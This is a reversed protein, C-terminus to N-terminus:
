YQDYENEHQQYRDVLLQRNDKNNKKKKKKKNKKMLNYLGLGGAALGTGLLLQQWPFQKTETSNNNEPIEPQKDITETTNNSTDEVTNIGDTVYQNDYYNLLNNNGEYLWYPADQSRNKKDDEVYRNTVTDVLGMNLSTNLVPYKPFMNFSYAYGPHGMYLSAGHNVLNFVTGANAIGTQSLPLLANPNSISGLRAATAIDYAGAAAPTGTIAFKLSNGTTLGLGKAATFAKAGQAIPVFQVFDLAAHGANALTRDFTSGEANGINMINYQDAIDSNYVYSRPDYEAEYMNNDLGISLSKDVFSQIGNVLCSGYRPILPWDATVRSGHPNYASASDIDLGLGKRSLMIQYALTPSNAYAEDAAPGQGWRILSSLLGKDQRLDIKYTGVPRVLPSTSVISPDMMLAATQMYSYYAEQDKYYSSLTHENFAPVNLDNRGGFYFHRYNNFTNNGNDGLDTVSTYEPLNLEHSLVYQLLQGSYRIDSQYVTSKEPDVDTYLQRVQEEAAYKDYAPNDRNSNDHSMKVMRLIKEPYYRCARAIYCRQAVTRQYAPTTVAEYLLVDFAANNIGEQVQNRANISEFDNYQDLQDLKLKVVPPVYVKLDGTSNERIIYCCYNSRATDGTMGLSVVQADSLDGTIPGTVRETDADWELIVDIDAQPTGAQVLEDHMARRRAAVHQQYKETLKYDNYNEDRCIADFKINHDINEDFQKPVTGYKPDGAPILARFTAENAGDAIAHIRGLTAREFYAKPDIVINGNSDKIARFVPIHNGQRTRLQYFQTSGGAPTYKFRDQSGYPSQIEPNYVGQNGIQAYDGFHPADYLYHGKPLFGFAGLRGAYQDSSVFKNTTRDFLAVYGGGVDAFVYRNNEEYPPLTPAQDLQLTYKSPTDSVGELLTPILNKKQLDTLVHQLDTVSLSEFTKGYISEFNDKYDQPLAHWLERKLRVIHSDVGEESYAPNFQSLAFPLRWIGEGKPDQLIGKLMDREAPDYEQTDVLMSHRIVEKSVKSPDGYYGQAILQRYKESGELCVEYLTDDLSLGHRQFLPGYKENIIPDNITFAAEAIPKLYGKVIEKKQEASLNNDILTASIIPYVQRFRLDLIDTGDNGKKYSKANVISLEYNLIYQQEEATLQKGQKIKAYISEVKEAAAKKAAREANRKEEARRMAAADENTVTASVHNIYNDGGSPTDHILQSYQAKKNLYTHLDNAM